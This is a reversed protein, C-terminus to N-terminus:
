NFTQLCFRRKREWDLMSVVRTSRLLLALVSKTPIYRLVRFLIRFIRKCTHDCKYDEFSMCLFFFFAILVNM